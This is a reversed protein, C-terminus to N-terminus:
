EKKDKVVRLSIDEKGHRMATVLIKTGEPFAQTLMEKLRILEAGVLERKEDALDGIEYNAIIVDDQTLSKVKVTNLKVEHTEGNDTEFLLKGM